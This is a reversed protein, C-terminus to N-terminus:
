IRYGLARLETVKNADCQDRVHCGWPFTTARQEYLERYRRRTAFPGTGEFGAFFFAHDLGGCSAEFSAPEGSTETCDARSADTNIRTVGYSTWDPTDRPSCDQTGLWRRQTLTGNASCSLLTSYLLGSANHVSYCADENAVVFESPVHPPSMGLEQQFAEEPSLNIAPADYYSWIPESGDRTASCNEFASNVWEAKIVRDESPIGGPPVDVNMVKVMYNANVDCQNGGGTVPYVKQGASAYNSDGSLKGECEAMTDFFVLEPARNMPDGTVDVIFATPSSPPPSDSSVPSFTANTEAVVEREFSSSNMMVPNRSSLFWDPIKHCRNQRAVVNVKPKTCDVDDFFQLRAYALDSLDSREPSHRQLTAGQAGQSLRSLDRELYWLSEPDDTFAGPFKPDDESYPFMCSAGYTRWPDRYRSLTHNRGEVDVFFQTSFETADPAELTSASQAYADFADKNLQTTNDVLSANVDFEANLRNEMVVVYTTNDDLSAWSGALRSNVEVNSVRSGRPASANVRFRLGSAYPYFEDDETILLKELIGELMARLDSGSREHTTLWEPNQFLDELDSQTFNGALIDSRCGKATQISIDATSTQDLYGRAIVQCAASGKEYVSEADCLPDESTDVRGPAGAHCLTKPVEAIATQGSGDDFVRAEVDTRVEQMTLGLRANATRNLAVEFDPDEACGRGLLYLYVRPDVDCGGGEFSCMPDSDCSSQDGYEAACKTRELQMRFQALIGAAAGVRQAEEFKVMPDLICREFSGQSEVAICDVQGQCATLDTRSECDESLSASVQDYVEMADDLVASNNANPECAANWACESPCASANYTHCTLDARLARCYEAQNPFLCEKSQEGRLFEFAKAATPTKEVAVFRALNKPIPDVKATARMAVTPRPDFRRLPADYSGPFWTKRLQPPASDANGLKGECGSELRFPEWEARGQEGYFRYAGDANIIEDMARPYASVGGPNPNPVSGVGYVINNDSFFVRDNSTLIETQGADPAGIADAHGVIMNSSCNSVRVGFTRDSTSFVIANALTIGSGLAVDVIGFDGGTGAAVLTAGYIVPHTRYTTADNGSGSWTGEARLASRGNTPTDVYVRKMLGRYGNSARVGDKAANWVALDNAFATGGRFTVGNGASHAVEVHSLRTRHGCAFVGVASADTATDSGGANLVIVHEMRGCSGEDDDGGYALSSGSAGTVNVCRPLYPPEPPADAMDHCPPFIDAPMTEVQSVRASGLLLIGGWDGRSNPEANSSHSEDKMFVIPLQPTGVAHIRANPLIIISPLAGDGVPNSMGWPRADVDACNPRVRIVAGPEVYLMGPPKIVVTCMVTIPTGDNKWTVIGDYLGGYIDPDRAPPPPSPRSFFEQQSHVLQDPDDPDIHARAVGCLALLLVVALPRFAGPLGRSRAVSTVGFMRTMNASTSVVVDVRLDARM